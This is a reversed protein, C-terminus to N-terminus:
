GLGALAARGATIRNFAQIFRAGKLDQLGHVTYGNVRKQRERERFKKRSQYDGHTRQKNYAHHILRRADTIRINQKLTTLDVEIGSNYYIIHGVIRTNRQYKAARLYEQWVPSLSSVTSM